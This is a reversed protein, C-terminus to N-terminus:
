IVVSQPTRCSEILSTSDVKVSLAVELPISPTLQVAISRAVTAVQKAMRCSARSESHLYGVALELGLGSCQLVLGSVIDEASLTLGGLVVLMVTESPGHFESCEDVPEGHLSSPSALLIM